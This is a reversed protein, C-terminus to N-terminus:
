MAFIGGFSFGDIRCLDCELSRILCDHRCNADTGCDMLCGVYSFTACGDCSDSAGLGGGPARRLQPFILSDAGYSYLASASRYTACTPHLSREATFGPTSRDLELTGQM